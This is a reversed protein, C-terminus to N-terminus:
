QTCEDPNTICRGGLCNLLNCDKECYSWLFRDCWECGNNVCELCNDFDKCKPAPMTTTTVLTTTTTGPLTTTTTVVSICAGDKCGNPCVFTESKIQNGECYYEVVAGCTATDPGLGTCYTCTDTRSELYKVKGDLSKTLTVTGKKYYDRGGDSDRCEGTPKKVVNVTTSAKATQQHDDTVTFTITYTGVRNYSHTFTVTQIGKYHSSSPRIVTEDGWDVKYTLVGNEPDHAKIVWTGIEDVKLQTPATLGDIVPPLNKQKVIRPATIGIKMHMVSVM